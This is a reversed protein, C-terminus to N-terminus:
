KMIQYGIFSGAAFGVGIKFWGREWFRKKDEVTLNMAGVTKILPNSHKILVNYENSKFVRKKYATIVYLSDPFSVKSLRVSTNNVSGVISYDSNEAKFDVPKFEPCPITDTLRIIIPESVETNTIVRTITKANKIKVNADSLANKLDANEKVITKFLDANVENATQSVVGNKLHILSDNLSEIYEKAQEYKGSM